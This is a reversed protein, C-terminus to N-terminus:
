MRNGTLCELMKPYNKKMIKYVICCIIITLVPKLIYFVIMAIWNTNYMPVLHRLLMGALNLGFVGHAAYVFFTMKSMRKSYEMKNEMTLKTALIVAVLVGIIVYFPYIYQGINTNYGDFFFTLLLLPICLIYLLNRHCYAEYIMNKDHISFYAGFSFFFIATTSLGHIYPWIGTIYCCCLLLITWHRFQKILYYIIPTLIVVVILDRLFWLPILIPGSPPYIARAM